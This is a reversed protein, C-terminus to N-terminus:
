PQRYYGSIVSARLGSRALKIKLDHYEDTHAAYPLDFQLRYFLGVQRLCANILVESRSRNGAELTLGGSHIAFVQLALDGSNAQVPTKIGGLYDGFFFPSGGGASCVTMRAERLGNTMSAIVNFNLQHGRANYTTENGRLTPWGPGTWILVKRGPEPIENNIITALSRVSLQFRELSGESRSASHITHISPQFTHVIQALADGDQSAKGVMQFGADTLLVITVPHALQGNNQRLFREIGTRFFESDQMESNVGDIVLIVSVLADAPSPASEGAHFDVIRQPRGNDLLNFDEVKLGPVPDGSADTVVVDLSLRGPVPQDTEPALPRPKLVPDPRPVTQGHSDNQMGSSSTAPLNTQPRGDQVFLVFLVAVLLMRHADFTQKTAM